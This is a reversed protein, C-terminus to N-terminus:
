NDEFTLLNFKIFYICWANQLQARDDQTTLISQENFCTATVDASFM